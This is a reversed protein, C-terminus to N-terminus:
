YQAIVEAPSQIAFNNANEPAWFFEIVELGLFNGKVYAGLSEM